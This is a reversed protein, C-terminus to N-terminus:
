NPQLPKKSNKIDRRELFLATVFGFLGYLSISGIISIFLYSSAKIKSVDSIYLEVRHMPFRVPLGRVRKEDNVLTVVDSDSM